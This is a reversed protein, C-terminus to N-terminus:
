IRDLFLVIVSNGFVSCVLWNSVLVMCKKMERVMKAAEARAAGAVSMLSCWVLV